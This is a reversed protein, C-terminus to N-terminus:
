TQGRSGQITLAVGGGSWAQFRRIGVLPGRQRTALRSHGSVGSISFPRPVKM